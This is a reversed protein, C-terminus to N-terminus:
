FGRSSWDIELQRSDIIIELIRRYYESTKGILRNVENVDHFSNGKKGKSSKVREAAELEAANDFVYGGHFVRSRYSYADTLNKLIDARELESKSLFHAVRIRLKYSVEAKDQVVILNELAAVIDALIDARFPNEWAIAFRRMSKAVNEWGRSGELKLFIARRKVYLKVQQSSFKNDFVHSSNAKWPLETLMDGGRDRPYANRILAYQPVCIHEGLLSRLIAVEENLQVGWNKFKYYNFVALSTDTDEIIVKTFVCQKVFFCVPWVTLRHHITVGALVNNLSAIKAIKHVPIRQINLNQDLKISRSVGATLLIPAYLQFELNNNNPDFYKVLDLWVKEFRKANWREIGSSFLYSILLEKVVHRGSSYNQGRGLEQIYILKGIVLAFPETTEIIGALKRGEESDLLSDQLQTPIQWWNPQKDEIFRYKGRKNSPEARFLPLSSLESLSQAIHPITYRIFKICQDRCQILSSM